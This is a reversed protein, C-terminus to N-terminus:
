YEAYSEHTALYLLTELEAALHSRPTMWRQLVGKRLPAEVAALEEEDLAVGAVEEAAKAAEAAEAAEFFRRAVEYQIEEEKSDLYQLARGLISRSLEEYLSRTTRCQNSNYGERVSFVQTLRYLDMLRRIESPPLGMEAPSVTNAYRNGAVDCFRDLNYTFVLDRGGPAWEAEVPLLLETGYRSRNVLVLQTNEEQTSLTYGHAAHHYQQSVSDHSNTTKSLLLKIGSSAVM